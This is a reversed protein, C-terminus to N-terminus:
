KYHFFMYGIGIVVQGQDLKVIICANSLTRYYMSIYSRRAAHLFYSKSLGGFSHSNYKYPMSLYLHVKLIKNKDWRLSKMKVYVFWPIFLYYCGQQAKDWDSRSIDEEVDYSCQGFLMKFKFLNCFYFLIFYINVFLFNNSIIM